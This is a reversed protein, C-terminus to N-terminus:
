PLPTRGRDARLALARSLERHVADALLAHGRANPHRDWRAVWLAELDPEDAYADSVDLVTFGASAAREMQEPIRQNAAAGPEPEPLFVAIPEIGQARARAVFEAYVADLLAPVQPALRREAVIRPLRGEIGSERIAQVARPFPLALDDEVASALENGLWISDDIGAYIVVDPDFGLARSELVALRSLPGYGGVSFNLIEVRRDDPAERNLRDEVLNEFTEDDEVGSGFTHSDGLIAIRLTGPPKARAYDRDRMGWRNTTIPVGRFTVAVSPHLRYPPYDGPAREIQPSANWEPPMEAYLEALQPNFRVVDTLDEYYGRELLREDRQSLQSASRLRHLADALRPEFEFLLPRTGVTLLLACAATVVGASRWSAGPDAKRARRARAAAQSRRDIAVAAAGFGALALAIGAAERPSATALQSFVSWWAGLSDASWVSWATVIVVFTALTRLGLGLDARLSRKGAGLTRARGFSRERLMDVMVLAGLLLWFLADQARVPFDGRIWFWQYSHLAWTVLFTVLTASVLARSEGLRRKLSFYAPNFVLKQMFDKWYINIRRWFDTFSSALAWHQFPEPLAFGFLHLMGVILHFDGSIRLYLLFTGVIWQVAQAAGSVTSPDILLNQYLARYLLLHVVGRLMWRLGTAYTPFPDEGPVSRAFTKYDVVPFLPFCVNPLMFFYALARPPDFPAARHRLDYLYIALRFMFMSGLLPWLPDPLAAPGLGARLAALAAAAALLLAVRAGVPVPLHALGILALGVGVLRAANAPGLVFGIGLLSLAAFGAMRLRAPLFHLVVFGAWAVAAVHLFARSELQFARIVLVLLGFALAVSAFRALGVLGTKGPTSPTM